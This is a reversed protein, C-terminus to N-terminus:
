FSKANHASKQTSLLIEFNQLFKDCNTMSDNVFLLSYKKPNSSWAASCEDFDVMLKGPDFRTKGSFSTQLSNWVRCLSSDILSWWIFFEIKFIIQLAKKPFRGM